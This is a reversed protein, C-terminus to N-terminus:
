AFPPKGACAPISGVHPDPLRQRSRNGRVRPSLGLGDVPAQLWAYTEGCVRPYVWRIMRMLTSTNPKGACAPISGDTLGWDSSLHQTGRVRPSLGRVDQPCPMSSSTERCVRPYVRSCCSPLALPVPKGACAPISGSSIRTRTGHVRNGRVRPSLGWDAANRFSGVRTEGCVRPYVQTTALGLDDSVPKGACAPISGREAFVHHNHLHNGRM